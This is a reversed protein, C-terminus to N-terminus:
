PRTVVAPCGHTDYTVTGYPDLNIQWTWCNDQNYGYCAWQTKGRKNEYPGTCYQAIESGGWYKQAWYQSYELAGEYTLASATAASVALLAACVGLVVLLRRTTRTMTRM